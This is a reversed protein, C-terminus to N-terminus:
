SMFFLLNDIVFIMWRKSKMILVYDPIIAGKSLRSNLIQQSV